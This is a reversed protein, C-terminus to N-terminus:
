RAAAGGFARVLAQTQEIPMALRLHAAGDQFGLAMVMGSDVRAAPPAAGLM